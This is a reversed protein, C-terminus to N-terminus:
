PDRRAARRRARVALFLGLAVALLALAALLRPDLAVLGRRLSGAPPRVLEVREQAMLLLTAPHM